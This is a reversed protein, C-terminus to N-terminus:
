THMVFANKCKPCTVRIAGKGQPLRLSQGCNPCDETITGPHEQADRVSAEEAKRANADDQRNKQRAEKRAKAQEKADARKEARDKKAQARESADHLKFHATFATNEKARAALDTSSARYATYIVLVIGVIFPLTFLMPDIGAGFFSLVICVIGVALVVGGLTDMGYRSTGHPGESSPNQSV